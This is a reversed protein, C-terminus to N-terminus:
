AVLKKAARTARRKANIADHKAQANLTAVIKDWEKQIQQKRIRKDIRNAM